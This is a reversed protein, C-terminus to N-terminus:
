VGSLGGRTGPAARELADIDGAEIAPLAALIADIPWDWWALRLLRAVVADSFRIRVVRAPNGVAVAYPPIDGAVVARAGIIAGAGITVGAMVQAEHGLWVDPGVITDGRAATEDRYHGMQAPDFIRFPFASLGSMPHYASATVFRVGHAIQAFNGIVLREASGPYLYPALRRAPDAVADFDSYYAYDGVDIRPHDIVAKLFVTGAHATGDPLVLPNRVQAGPFGQM